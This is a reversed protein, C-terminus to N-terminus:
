KADEKIVFGLMSKLKRMPFVVMLLLDCSPFIEPNIVDVDIDLLTINKDSIQYESLDDKM